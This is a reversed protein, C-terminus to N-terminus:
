RVPENMLEDIANIVENLEDESVYGRQLTARARYLLGLAKGARFAWFGADNTEYSNVRRCLEEGVAKEIRFCWEIDPKTPDSVCVTYGNQEARLKM